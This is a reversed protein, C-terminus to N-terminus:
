KTKRKRPPRFKFGNKNPSKTAMHANIANAIDQAARYSSFLHHDFSHFESTSTVQLVCLEYGNSKSGIVWAATRWKSSRKPEPGSYDSERYPRNRRRADYQGCDIM